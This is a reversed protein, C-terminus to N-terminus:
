EKSKKSKTKKINVKEEQFGNILWSYIADIKISQDHLQNKKIDDLKYNIIQVQEKILSLEQNEIGDQKKNRLIANRENRCPNM